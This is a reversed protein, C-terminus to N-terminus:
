LPMVTHKVGVKGVTQGRSVFQGKKVDIKSLHAYVTSFSDPHRVIVMNGYGRIQNGAYIVHGSRSAHVPTGTPAPIDIAREAFCSSREPHCLKTLKVEWHRVRQGQNGLNRVM